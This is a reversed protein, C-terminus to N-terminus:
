CLVRVYVETVGASVVIVVRAVGADFSASTVKAMSGTEVM